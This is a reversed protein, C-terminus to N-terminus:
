QIAANYGDNLLRMRWRNAEDRTAFPGVRVHILNDAPDRRVNVAYGRKRLAGVLVDADEARSIAAVQVMLGGAAQGGAPLASRTSAAAQTQPVSSRAALAPRVQPTAGQAAPDADTSEASQQPEGSDSQAPSQAPVPAQSPQPVPASSASPKAQANGALAAGQDATAPQDAAATAAQARHHGVAYGAGFCIGCLVVLGCFLLLLTGAGLTLETDRSPPEFQHSPFRGTRVPQYEEEEEFVERM